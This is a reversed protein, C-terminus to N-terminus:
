FPLKFPLDLGGTMKAMEIKALDAAKGQADNVAVQILDELLAIDDPNVVSRDIRVRTIQGKGDAEVTVMGDGASASVAQTKLDDQIQQLRSQMAQAQELMRSFDPM